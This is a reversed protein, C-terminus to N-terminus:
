TKQQSRQYKKEAFDHILTQIKKNDAGDQFLFGGGSNEIYGQNLAGSYVERGITSRVVITTYGDDSGLGGASIDSYDNSFDSCSLCAPRAIQAIEALPINITIGSKMQLILKEKINVKEIDEINISHKAAFDRKLLDELTFCQMCFLGITFIILDSPVINLEQMKRITNIQCPTGVMALKKVNRDKTTIKNIVSIVQYKSAYIDGLKDLHFAETFFSGAANIVDERNYAITPTRVGQDNHSVIAGDIIHNDLMYTLLSSVVGGDTAAALINADTSRSSFIKEWNGQPYKWKHTFKIEEDLIGTQPCLLYCLGGELCKSQDAFRPYGDEGFELAGLNNASCFSVCGGCRTCLETKIIENYLGEFSLSRGSLM